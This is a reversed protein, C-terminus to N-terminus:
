SQPKSPAKWRNLGTPPAAFPIGKFVTATNGGRFPSQTGQVAGYNTKVVRINSGRQLPSALISEAGLTVFGFFFSLVRM